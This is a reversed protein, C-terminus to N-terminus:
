HKENINTCTLVHVYCTEPAQSKSKCYDKAAMYADDRNPYYNSKWVGSKKDLATCRWYPKTSLGLHFGECDNSSTKCTNPNKSQKKCADFSLNLAIKQYKNKVTWEVNNNDHTKCVWYDQNEDPSAFSLFPLFMTLLFSIKVQYNM